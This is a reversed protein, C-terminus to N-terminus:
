FMRQFIHESGIIWALHSNDRKSPFNICSVLTSKYIGIFEDWTDYKVQSIHVIHLIRIQHPSKYLRHVSVTSHTELLHPKVNMIALPRLDLLTTALGLLDM